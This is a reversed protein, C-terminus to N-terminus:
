GFAPINSMTLHLFGDEGKFKHYVDNILSDYPLIRNNAYFYVAEDPKYDKTKRILSLLRSITFKKPLIYKLIGQKMASHRTYIVVPVKAASRTQPDAPLEPAHKVPEPLLQDTATSEAM